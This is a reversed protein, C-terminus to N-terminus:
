RYTTVGEWIIAHATIRRTIFPKLTSLSPVRVPNHCVMLLEGPYDSSQDRGSEDPGAVIIAFGRAGGIASDSHQDTGHDVEFRTSDIMLAAQFLRIVNEIDNNTLELM